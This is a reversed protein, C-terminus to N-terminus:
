VKFEFQLRGFQLKDGDHLSTPTNPTLRNGNVRTYNTSDLDIVSWQGGQYHMTAHRRSVGGAEGGQTTLDVDPHIGSIPDERGVVLEPQQKIPVITGDSAVLRPGSGGTPAAAPAPAPSPAPTAVSAPAPTLQVPPTTLPPGSTIAPSPIVAEAPPAANPLPQAPQGVGGMTPGVSDATAMTHPASAPQPQAGGSGAPVLEVKTGCELCFKANPPLEAGCNVCHTPRIMAPKQEIKTGCDLCFKANAPLTAGCNPCTQTESAQQVPAVEHMQAPAPAPESASQPAVPPPSAQEPIGQGDGVSATADGARTGAEPTSAPVSQAPPTPSTEPVSPTGALAASPPAPAEQEPPTTHMAAVSAAQDNPAPAQDAEAAQSTAKVGDLAAGCQECFRDDASNHYGCNPCVVTTAGAPPASAPGSAAADSSTTPTPSPPPLQAGCNECFATGPLNEQGCQPCLISGSIAAHMPAGGAAATPSASAAPANATALPAGCQDCFRNSPDNLHGNPCAIQM